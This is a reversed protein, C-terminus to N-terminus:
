LGEKMQILSRKLENIKQLYAQKRDNTSEKDTLSSAMANFYGLKLQTTLAKLKKLPIGVMVHGM